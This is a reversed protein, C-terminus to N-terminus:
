ERELSCKLPYEHKRALNHVMASKTEAVDRPYVGAVGVGEKHVSMMIRHASDTDHKFVTELVTVVFDMTTYDDNHLLVKYRPPQRLEQEERTVADLGTQDQSMNSM